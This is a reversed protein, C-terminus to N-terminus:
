PQPGAPPAFMANLEAHDSPSLWVELAGANEIVRGTHSAKPIPIVRDQSLLWALAIQGVTANREAAFRALTDHKILDARDFPSYAMVALGTNQLWPLLDAEIGRQNLNYLLQEVQTHEGGSIQYFQR